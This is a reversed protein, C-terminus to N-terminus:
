SSVRLLPFYYDKYRVTCSNRPGFNLDVNKKSLCLREEGKVKRGKNMKKKSKRQTNRTIKLRNGM